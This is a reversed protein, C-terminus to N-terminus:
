GEMKKTHAPASATGCIDGAWAEASLSSPSAALAEVAVVIAPFRDGWDVGRRSLLRVRESDRHALM